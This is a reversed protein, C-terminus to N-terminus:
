AKADPGETVETVATHGRDSPRRNAWWVLVGAGAIMAMGIVGIADPLDGFLVLGFVVAIPIQVYNIPALTSAQSLTFAKILSAQGIAHLVGSAILLVWAKATPATWQGPLAVSTAVLGVLATYVLTTVPDADRLVRTSVHYIAVFVAAALPFVVAPGLVASGPRIVVLMGAFGLVLAALVAGSIRERLFIASLVVIILPAVYLIATTEGLPMARVGLVMGTGIGVPMLGRGIQLLLRDTRLVAVWRSPKIWAMVALLFFSFRAWMVQAASYDPTLEKAIADMGTFLVLTFALYPAGALSGGAIKQM